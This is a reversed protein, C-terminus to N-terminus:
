AAHKQEVLRLLNPREDAWALAAVRDALEDLVAPEPVSWLRVGHVKRPEGLLERALANFAHKGLREGTPTADAYARWVDPVPHRGPALSEVFARAGADVKAALEAAATAKAAAAEVKSPALSAVKRPKRWQVRYPTAPDPQDEIQEVLDDIVLAVWRPRKPREGLGFRALARTDVVAQRLRRSASAPPDPLDALIRCVLDRLRPEGYPEAVSPDDPDVRVVIPAYTDPDLYFRGLLLPAIADAM